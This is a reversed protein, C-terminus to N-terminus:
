SRCAACAPPGYKTLLLVRADEAQGSCGGAGWQGALVGAAAHLPRWRAKYNLTPFGDEPLGADEEFTKLLHGAPPPPLRRRCFFDAALGSARHVSAPRGLSRGPEARGAVGEIATHSTPPADSPGSSGGHAVAAPRPWARVIPSEGFKMTGCASRRQLWGAPGRARLTPTRPSQRDAQSKLSALCATVLSSPRCLWTCDLSGRGQPSAPMESSMRLVGQPTLLDSLSTWARALASGARLVQLCRLPPALRSEPVPPATGPVRSPATVVPVPADLVPPDPCPDDPSFSCVASWRRSGSM